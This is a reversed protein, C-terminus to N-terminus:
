GVRGNVSQQLRLLYMLPAIKWIVNYKPNIQDIIIM